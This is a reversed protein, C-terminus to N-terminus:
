PSVEYKTKNYNYLFIYQMKKCVFFLQSLAGYIIM